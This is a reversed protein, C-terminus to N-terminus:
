PRYPKLYAGPPCRHVTHPPEVTGCWATRTRYTDDGPPTTCLEAEATSAACAVTGYMHLFAKAAAPNRRLLIFGTTSAWVPVYGSSQAANAGWWYGASEHPFTGRNSTDLAIWEAEIPHGTSDLLNEAVLHVRTRSVLQDVLFTDAMVTAGDPIRALIEHAASCRDGCRYADPEIITRLPTWWGIVLALVLATAGATRASIRGPMGSLMSGHRRWGDLAAVFVVVMLTANYHSEPGWYEPRASTFRVLLSPVAVWALPSRLALFGTCAMALLVTVPASGSTLATWLNGLMGIPSSVPGRADGTVAWYTYTGSYSLAPIVVGVVLAFGAVAAAMAAIALRRLGVTWCAIALGAILFASDEKVLLLPLSWLVAARWRVALARDLCAALLPLAFAVEHFDFLAAGTVGWSLGFAAAVACGAGAHDFVRIATRGVVTVALGILVAQAVILTEVHPWVRYVPGLVAVIPTFHDGLLNFDGQAKLPSWPWQGRSYHEVAQAYLGLDIGTRMTWERMLGAWAWLAAVAGGVLWPGGTRSLGPLGRGRVRVASAPQGGVVVTM